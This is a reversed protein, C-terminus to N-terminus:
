TRWGEQILRTWHASDTPLNGTNHDTKSVFAHINNGDQYLVVDHTIYEVTADWEGKWTQWPHIELWDPNGGSLVGVFSLIGTLLRVFIRGPSVTGLFTLAGTLSQFMGRNLTGTPTFVGSLAKGTNRTIGGAFTLEGGATVQNVTTIQVTDGYGTGASNVAYARIRYGTGGTLGTIAKTYAGTGYSGDDYAVSDATTPDGSTGVKYCFGRRTCNEGGTNTINGNGTCSTAAVDSAAQTTVTPAVTTTYTISLYPESGVTSSSRFLSYESAAPQSGDYDEKSILVMKFTDNKKAIIASLGSANFTIENWDYQFSVSNWADNLVTGTYAGSAQHGDFLDFDGAALPTSYTSTHIYLDFDVDSVDNYSYLFLSASTLSVMDPIAFSTFARQVTFGTSQGIGYAVNPGRGSSANRATNYTSADYGYLYGDNSAVVSTPDVRVPFIADRTDLEATLVAGDRSVMVPVDKGDADIATPDPTIIATKGRQETVNWSLKTPATEDKLTITEKVGLGTTEVKVTLSPSEEFLAEYEVFSDGIEMRYDHPKDAKFHADYLGSKVEYPYVARKADDLPKLKVDTDIAKFSGDADQWHIPNAYVKARRVNGGLSFVKANATRESLIEGVEVKDVPTNAVVPVKAGTAVLVGIKQKVDLGM